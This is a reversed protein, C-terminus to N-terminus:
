EGELVRIEEEIKKQMEKYTKLDKKLQMLKAAQRSVEDCNRITEDGEIAIIQKILPADHTDIVAKLTLYQDHKQDGQLYTLLMSVDAITMTQSSQEIKPACLMEPRVIVQDQIVLEETRSRVMALAFAKYGDETFFQRRNERREELNNFGYDFIELLANGAWEQLMVRNEEVADTDVVYSPLSKKDGEEVSPTEAFVLGSCGISFILVTAFLRLM